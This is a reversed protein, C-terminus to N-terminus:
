ANLRAALWGAAFPIHLSANAGAVHGDGAFIMTDQPYGSEGVVLADTPSILVDQDGNISLLAADGTPNALIGQADLSIPAIQPCFGEVGLEYFNLGLSYAFTLLTGVNITSCWAAGFTDRVPGGVNVAATLDPDTLALKAAFHGGYSLGYFGIRSGDVDDRGKLHDIAASFLRDADPGNPLFASQGTGPVDVAFTALGQALFADAFGNMEGKWLDIGGAVVVVPPAAAGAPVRLHGVIEEGAFPIRVVAIAPDLYRGAAEHAAVSKAYAAESAPTLTTPFRAIFYYSAAEAYEASATAGEGGAAAAEARALHEDGVAVLPDVFAPDGPAVDPPVTGLAEALEAADVDGVFDCVRPALFFPVGAPGDAFAAPDACFTALDSTPPTSAADPTDQAAGALPPLAAVLTLLLIPLRHLVGRSVAM